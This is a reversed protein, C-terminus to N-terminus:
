KAQKYLPSVTSWNGDKMGPDYKASSTGKRETNFIQKLLSHPYMEHDGHDLWILKVMGDGNTFRYPSDYSLDVFAGTDGKVTPLRHSLKYYGQQIWDILTIKETDIIMYDKYKTQDISPKVVLALQYIAPELSLVAHDPSDLGSFGSLVVSYSGNFKLNFTLPINWYIDRSITKEPLNTKPCSIEFAKGSNISYLTMIKTDYLTQGDSTILMKFVNLGGGENSPKIKFNFFGSLDFVDYNWNQGSVVAKVAFERLNASATWPIDGYKVGGLYPRASDTTSYTVTTRLWDGPSKIPRTYDYRPNYTHQDAGFFKEYQPGEPVWNFLSAPLFKVALKRSRDSNTSLRVLYGPDLNVAIHCTTAETASSLKQYVESTTADKGLYLYYTIFRPANINLNAVSAMSRLTTDDNTQSKLVLPTRAGPVDLSFALNLLDIGNQEAELQIQVIAFPKGDELESAGTSVSPPLEVSYNVAQYDNIKLTAQSFNIGGGDSGCGAVLPLLMFLLMPLTRKIKEKLPEPYCMASDEMQHRIPQMRVM